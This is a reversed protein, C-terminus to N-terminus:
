LIELGIRELFNLSKTGWKAIEDLPVETCVWRGSGSEKGTLDSTSLASPGTIPDGAGCM